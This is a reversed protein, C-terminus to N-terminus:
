APVPPASASARRAREFGAPELLVEADHEAALRDLARRVGRATAADAPRLPALGGRRSGMPRRRRRRHLRQLRLARRPLQHAPRVPRRRRRRCWPAGGGARRRRSGGRAQRRRVARQVDERVRPPIQRVPGVDGELLLLPRGLGEDRAPLPQGLPRRVVDTPPITAELPQRRRAARACPCSAGCRVCRAAARPPSILSTPVAARSEMRARFVSSMKADARRTPLTVHM